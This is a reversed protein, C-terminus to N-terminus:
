SSSSSIETMVDFSKYISHKKRSYFFLGEIKFLYHEPSRFNIQKQTNIEFGIATNSQNCRGKGKVIKM